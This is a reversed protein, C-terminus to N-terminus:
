VMSIYPRDFVHLMREYKNANYWDEFSVITGPDYSNKTLTKKGWEWVITSSLKEPHVPPISPIYRDRFLWALIKSPIESM